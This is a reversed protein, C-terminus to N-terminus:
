QKIFHLVKSRTNGMMGYVTYSGAALNSVNVPISNFGATLALKLKKVLRGQKDTIFVDMNDAIASSVNLNFNGGTVPNPAISIIEFGSFANLLAVISSYSIKGDIDQLKLRYYNM